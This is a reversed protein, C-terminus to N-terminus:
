GEGWSSGEPWTDRPEYGTVVRTPELDFRSAGGNLSTVFLREFAVPGAALAGVFFAVADRHSLYIDHLNPHSQMLEAEKRNRVFWGLRASIFSMGHRWAYMEAMLEACCKTLAYFDGPHYGDAVTIPRGAPTADLASAVRGTSAFVVRRVNAVRAAEFLRYSGVVNNPLLDDVFDAHDPTAALHVVADIGVMAKALALEDTLDGLVHPLDGPPATRDFGRVAYGQAILEPCVVRGIAGAAGTVLVRM